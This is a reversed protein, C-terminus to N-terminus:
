TCNIQVIYSSYGEKGGSVEAVGTRKNNELRGGGKEWNFIYPCGLIGARGKATVESM